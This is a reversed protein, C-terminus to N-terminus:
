RRPRAPGSGPAAAPILLLSRGPRAQLRMQAEHLMQRYETRDRQFEGRDLMQQLVDKLPGAWAARSALVGHYLRTSALPTGVRCLQTGGADVPLGAMWTPTLALAYDAQGLPLYLLADSLTNAPVRASAPLLSEAVVMGRRYSVRHRALEAPSLSAPCPPLGFAYLDLTMLPVDIRHLLPSQEFYAGPRMAVGDVRGASLEIQSRALPWALYEIQLGLSEYAERLLAETPAVFSRDVSTTLRVVSPPSERVQAPTGATVSLSAALALLRATLLPTMRCTDAQQRSAVLGGTPDGAQM